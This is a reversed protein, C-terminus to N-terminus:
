HGYQGYKKKKTKVINTKIKNKKIFARCWDEITRQWAIDRSLYKEYASYGKFLEKNEKILTDCIDDYFESKQEYHKIAYRLILKQVISELERNSSTKSYSKKGGNSRSEHNKRAEKLLHELEISTVNNTSPPTDSENNPKNNIRIVAQMSKQPLASDGDEHNIINDLVQEKHNQESNADSKSQIVAQVVPQSPINYKSRNDTIDAFERRENFIAECTSKLEDTGTFGLECLAYKGINGGYEMHRLPLIQYEKAEKIFQMFLGQKHTDKYLKRLNEYINQLYNIRDKNDSDILYESENEIWGFLTVNSGIYRKDQNSFINLVDVIDTENFQILDSKILLFQVSFENDNVFNGDFEQNYSYTKVIANNRLRTIIYQFIAFFTEFTMVEKM